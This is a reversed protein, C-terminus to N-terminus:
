PRSIKAQYIAELEDRRMPRDKDGHRSYLESKSSAGERKLFYPPNTGKQVSVLLLKKDEYALEQFSIDRPPPDCRTEVLEEFRQRTKTPDIGKVNGHKDVGVLIAGGSSNAFSAVSEFFEGIATGEGLELKWELYPGEGSEILRAVQLEPSEYTIYSAVTTSESDFDVWDIVEGTSRELIWFHLRTAPDPISIRVKEGDLVPTVPMESLRQGTTAQYESSERPLLLHQIDLLVDNEQIRMSRIRARFDPLTVFIFNKWPSNLTSGPFGIWEDITQTPNVIPPLGPWVIPGQPEYLATLAAGDPGKSSGTNISWNLIRSPWDGRFAQGIPNPRVTASGMWVHNADPMPGCSLEFDGIRSSTGPWITGRIFEAAESVRLPKLGLLLIGYDRLEPAGVQESGGDIRSFHVQGRLLRISSGERLAAFRFLAQDYTAERTGFAENFVRADPM